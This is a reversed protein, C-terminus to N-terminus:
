RNRFLFLSTVTDFIWRESNGKLLVNKTRIPVKSSLPEHPRSSYIIFGVLESAVLRAEPKMGFIAGAECPRRLRV